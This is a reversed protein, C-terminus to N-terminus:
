APPNALLGDLQADSPEQQYFLAYFRRVETRIDQQFSAPYLLKGLWLLGILRNAAPPNDFWSFPLDPVFHLHGAQVARVERWVPDTRAAAYFRRDVTLIVDPQWALIQEPSVDVIAHPGTDNGVVNRAGVLDVVESGISGAVATEFGRPGRAVYVSPHEAWPIKAVAEQVGGLITEAYRALAEAREPVGLLNGITRFTAGTEALRGGILVAPIHTQEQVQDALSVYTGPTSGVDLVLDPALRV